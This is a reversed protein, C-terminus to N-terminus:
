SGPPRSTDVAAHVEKLGAARATERLQPQRPASRSSRTWFGPQVAALVSIAQRPTSASSAWGGWYPSGGALLASLALTDLAADMSDPNANYTDDLLMVGRIVRHTLRGETLRAAALGEACEGLRIGLELGAAVALLANRVMHEGPTAISTRVTESGHHLAFRCGSASM